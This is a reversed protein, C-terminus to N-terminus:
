HGNTSEGGSAARRRLLTKHAERQARSILYVDCFCKLKIADDLVVPQQKTKLEDSLQLLRKM